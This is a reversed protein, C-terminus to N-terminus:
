YPDHSVAEGGAMGAYTSASPDERPATADPPPTAEHILPRITEVIKGNKIRYTLVHPGVPIDSFLSPDNKPNLEIDSCVIPTEQLPVGAKFGGDEDYTKYTIREPFWLGDELAIMSEVVALEEIHDPTSDAQYGVLRVPLYNKATNIWIM